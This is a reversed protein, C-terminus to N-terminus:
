FDKLLKNAALLHLAATETRLRSTGLQVPMFGADKAHDIEAPTFDGEPGVLYACPQEAIEKKYKLLSQKAGMDAIFGMFGAADKRVHDVAPHYHEMAHLAPLRSRKCQKIAAVLIKHLREANLETRESRACRIPRIQTVGLEVAKELLWEFSERHKPPAVLLVTPHPPEGWDEIRVDVTIIVADKGATQIHGEAYLGKGDTAAIRDGAKHRMVQLCHKAEDGTLTAHQAQIDTALFIDM